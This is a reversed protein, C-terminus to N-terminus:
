TLGYKRAKTLLTKYTVGLRRAAESKNGGTEALVKRLVQSEAMRAGHEAVEKLGGLMGLDDGPLEISDERVWIHESCIERDVALIAAREIANELERVNGPWSYHELKRLAEPTVTLKERKLEGRYKELLHDVLLPIDERRERLPPIHIPFVSLRYYLDERFSKEKMESLLDKNSASIVRVEVSITKTGGLREFQREQLVRLLKAQLALDLDGVEDLFITGKDALEFKGIKKGVSGTYAGRESGFLENELLEHPIAACNIPVFPFQKRLSMTHIARAFLEKGTGSEGMLLVNADSPAVQRVLEMVKTIAPGEGIITPLGQTDSCAERLLINETLLNRQELARRILLLLHDADFPKALFDYAGEKMAQVATEITGFATMVIVITLPDQDRVARLVELGSKGPLKLDVLVIDYSRSKAKAIGEEGDAATDVDLGEARMTHMLMRRMSEKDEIILISDM